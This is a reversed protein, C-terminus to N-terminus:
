YGHIEGTSRNWLGHTRPNYGRVRSRAKSARKLVNAHIANFSSKASNIMSSSKKLGYNLAGFATAEFDSKNKLGPTQTNVNRSQAQKLNTDARINENTARLNDVEAKLRLADMASNVGGSVENQMTASAGGPTSAGGQSAALIPNIGAARMDAVSRQYATNSMREQFAMQERAIRQNSQNASRQGLYNLYGGAAAGIGSIVDDVGFM